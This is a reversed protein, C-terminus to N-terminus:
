DVPDCVFVPIDRDTRAQYEDYDAYSAVIVPWLAGKEEEDVQRALYKRKVGEALIEPIPGVDERRASVYDHKPM